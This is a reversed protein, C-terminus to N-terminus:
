YQLISALSGAIDIREDSAGFLMAYGTFRSLIVAEVDSDEEGHSCGLM